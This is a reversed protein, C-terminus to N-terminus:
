QCIGGLVDSLRTLMEADPMSLSKEWKSVTQRFVNLHQALIEQSIGKQIRITKLNEGLM